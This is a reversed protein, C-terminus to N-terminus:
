LKLLLPMGDVRKQMYWGEFLNLRLGTGGNISGLRFVTRKSSNSNYKINVTKRARSVSSSIARVQVNLYIPKDDYSSETEIIIESNQNEQSSDTFDFVYRGYKLSSMYVTKNYEGSYQSEPKITTTSTSFSSSIGTLYEQVKIKKLSSYHLGLFYTNTNLTDQQSLDYELKSTVKSLISDMVSSENNKLKEIVKQYAQNIFNTNQLLETAILSQIVEKFDNVGEGKVFTKKHLEKRFDDFTIAHCSSFGDDLVLLDSPDTSTRRNLNRIEITDDHRVVTDQEPSEQSTM